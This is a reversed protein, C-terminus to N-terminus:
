SKKQLLWVVFEDFAVTNDENTDLIALQAQTEDEPISLELQHIAQQCDEFTLRIVFTLARM